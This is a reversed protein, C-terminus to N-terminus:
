RIYGKVTVSGQGWQVSTFRVSLRDARSLQTAIEQELAARIPPPLPLNLELIQVVPLGDKLTVRVKGGVHIRLGAITADGDGTISDPTMRVRPHEFPIQPYRQLYWTVTQEAELDTMSVEWAEGSRNGSQIHELLAVIQPARVADVVYPASAALMTGAWVYLNVAILIAAIWVNLSRRRLWRFINM